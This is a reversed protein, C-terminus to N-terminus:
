VKSLKVLPKSVHYLNSPNPDKGSYMCNELMNLFIPRIPM